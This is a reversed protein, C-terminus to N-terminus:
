CVWKELNAQRMLAFSDHNEVFNYMKEFLNMDKSPSKMMIYAFRSEFRM